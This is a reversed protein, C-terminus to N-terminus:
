GIFPEPPENYKTELEERLRTIEEKSDKMLGQVDFEVGGPLKVGKYKRLNNAWQNQFRAVVMERIWLQNFITQTNRDIEAYTIMAVMNGSYINVELPSYDPIDMTEKTYIRTVDGSDLYESSEITYLTEEDDFSLERDSSATKTIDGSVEIYNPSIGDGVVTFNHTYTKPIRRTRLFKTVPNFTYSVNTELMSELTAMYERFNYLSVINFAGTGGGTSWISWYLENYIQWQYDDLIDTSTTTDSSNFVHTVSIINDPLTLYGNREDSKKTEYVLPVETYGDVHYELFEDLTQKIRDDMQEEDIEINIVPKGLQRLAYEKLETASTIAM